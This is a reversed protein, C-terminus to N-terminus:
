DPHQQSIFHDRRAPVSRRPRRRRLVLEASFVTAAFLAMFGFCLGGALSTRLRSSEPFHRLYQVEVADGVHTTSPISADLSYTFSFARGVHRDDQADSYEYDAWFRSFRSGPQGTKGLAIVTGTTTTSALAYFLERGAVYGCAAFIVVYIALRWLPLRGRPRPSM